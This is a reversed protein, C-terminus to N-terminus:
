SAYDFAVDILCVLVTSCSVVPLDLCVCRGCASLRIMKGSFYRGALFAGDVLGSSSRHWCSGLFRGM